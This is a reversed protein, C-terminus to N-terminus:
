KKQSTTPPSFHITSVSRSRGEKNAGLGRTPLKSSYQVHHSKAEGSAGIELDTHQSPLLILFSIECQSERMTFTCSRSEM